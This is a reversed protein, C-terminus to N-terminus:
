LDSYNPLKPFNRTLSDPGMPRFMGSAWLVTGGIAQSAVVGNKGPGWMGGAAVLVRIERPSSALDM